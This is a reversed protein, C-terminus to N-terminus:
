IIKRGSLTEQIRTQKEPDVSKLTFSLRVSKREKPMLNNLYISVKEQLQEGTCINEERHLFIEADFAKELIDRCTEVVRNTYNPEREEPKFSQISMFKGALERTRNEAGPKCSDKHVFPNVHAKMFCLPVGKLWHELAEQENVTWNNVKNAIFNELLHKPETSM